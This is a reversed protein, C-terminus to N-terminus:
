PLFEFSSLILEYDAEVAAFNDLFSELTLVYVLQNLVIYYQRGRLTSNANVELEYDTVYAIEGGVSTEETGLITLGPRTSIQARIIEAVEAATQDATDVPFLLMNFIGYKDRTDVGLLIQINPNSKDEAWDLPYAFRVGLELNEYLFQDGQLIPASLTRSLDEEIAAIEDLTTNYALAQEYDAIAEERNNLMAQAVGRWYYLISSSGDLELGLDANAIALEPENWDLYLGVLRSFKDIDEIGYTAYQEGYRRSKEEEGQQLNVVALVHYADGIEPNLRLVQEMNHEALEWNGMEFYVFGLFLYADLYNPFLELARNYHPIAKDLQGNTAYIAGRLNHAAAMDPDAALAQENLEWAQDFNGLQHLFGAYVHLLYASDPILAVAASMQEHVAAEDGELMAIAALCRRPSTSDPVRALMAECIAKAEDLKEQQILLNAQIYQLSLNSPNLALGTEIATFAEDLAEEGTAFYGSYHAKVEYVMDLKPYQITLAALTESIGEVEYRDLQDWVLMTQLPPFQPHLAGASDLDMERLEKDTERVFTAARDFYLEPRTNDQDIALNLLFRALQIDFQWGALLARGWLAPVSTPNLAELEAVATEMREVDRQERGVLVLMAWAEADSPTLAVAAELDAVAAEYEGHWVRVSGRVRYALSTEGKALSSDALELAQAYDFQRYALWAQAALPWPSSEDLQAFQEAEDATESQQNAAIYIALREQRLHVQAEPTLHDLNALAATSHALFAATDERALAVLAQQGALESQLPPPLQNGALSMALEAHMLVSEGEETMALVAYLYAQQVVTLHAALPEAQVAATHAAARDGLEFLAITQEFRLQAQVYAPLLAVQELAREALPLAEATDGQAFTALAQYAWLDMLNPNDALAASIDNLAPELQGLHYNAVGRLATAETTHQALFRPQQALATEFYRIAETWQGNAVATRGAALAKAERSRVWTGGGLVAAVLVVGVLMVVWLWRRPRQPQEVYNITEM